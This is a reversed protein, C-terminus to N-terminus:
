LQVLCPQRAKAILNMSKSIKGFLVVRRLPLEGRAVDIALTYGTGKKKLTLAGWASGTSFFTKLDDQRVRPDLYLTKEVASYRFGTIALLQGYNALSRAYYNGAQFQSYPNRKKGDHRDRIAKTVTLGELVHGEYILNAAVQDEYGVMFTDAYLLDDTPRNGRPWTCILVGADDNLNFVCSANLHERCSDLFNYKFLSGLATKINKPEYIYGLGMMSAWWQGVLQESICGSKYQRPANVEQQQYYETNFLQEDTLKRANEFLKRYSRASTMDGAAMAMREGALLAVQYMSGCFTNWGQLDLDLTNHQGMTMMGDKDPDWAIWAYELSKKVDPWMKKLWQTDGSLQWERYVRLILGFQGDAAAKYFPKEPRKPANPNARFCLHGNPTMRHEYDWERTLREIDPFLYAMSQMYHYVHLCTGPCCGKTQGCGEWGWYAGDAMRYMTQSRLVSLQSSVAETIVGPVNGDFLYKQFLRTDALLRRYNTLVYDSVGVADKFETAYYNGEKRPFFWSIVYPIHKEEGPELEFSVAISSTKTKGERTPLNGGRAFENIYYNFGGNGMWSGGIWRKLSGSKQMPLTYTMQNRSKGNSTIVRTRNASSVTDIDKGVLNEMSFSLSASYKRASTNKLTIEVIAVPLSSDASNGPIFPSWGELAADVPFGPDSLKVKAFPFKGVFTAKEYRPLGATSGYRVGMGYGGDSFFDPGHGSLNETIRGELVRFQPASGDESKVHLGIFTFDPRSHSWPHHGVEWDVLAGKGNLSICGSGIGGLPFRIENLYDGAYTVRPEVAMLEEHTYPLKKITQGASLLSAFM